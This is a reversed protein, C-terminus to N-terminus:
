FVASDVPLRVENWYKLIRDKTELAKTHSSSDSLLKEAWVLGAYDALANVTFEDRRLAQIATFADFSVFKILTDEPIDPSAGIIVDLIESRQNSYVVQMARPFHPYPDLARLEIDFVSRLDKIYVLALKLLAINM